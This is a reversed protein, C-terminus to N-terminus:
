LRHLFPKTQVPLGRLKRRLNALSEDAALLTGDALAVWKGSYRSANGRLWDIDSFRKVKAPLRRRIVPEALVIGLRRLSEDVAHGTSVAGLLKRAALVRDEALFQRVMSEIVVVSSRSGLHQSIRRWDEVDHEVPRGANYAESAQYDFVGRRRVAAGPANLPRGASFGGHTRGLETREMPSQRHGDEMSLPLEPGGPTEIGLSGFHQGSTTM